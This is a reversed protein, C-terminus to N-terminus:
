LNNIRTIEGINYGLGAGILPLADLPFELQVSNYDLIFFMGTIVVAMISFIVGGAMRKRKWRKEGQRDRDFAQVLRSTKTGIIRGTKLTFLMQGAIFWILVCCLGFLFGPPGGSEIYFAFMVIILLMILNYQILLKKKLRKVEQIDWDTESM